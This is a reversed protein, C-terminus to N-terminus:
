YEEGFNLPFRGSVHGDLFVVAFGDGHPSHFPNSMEGRIPDRLYATRAQDKIADLKLTRNGFVFKPIVSKLSNSHVYDMEGMLGEPRKVVEGNKINLQEQPCLFAGRNKLYPMIANVFAAHNETSDFSYYPPVTDDSDSSYVIIGNMVKKLNYRCETSLSAIGPTQDIPWLVAGLGCFLMVPIIYSLYQHFFAAFRSEQKM